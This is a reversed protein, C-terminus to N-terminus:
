RSRWRAPVTYYPTMVAEFVCRSALLVGALFWVEREAPRRRVVYLAALVSLIVLVLRVPGGAVVPGAHASAARASGLRCAVADFPLLASAGAAMDVPGLLLLASPRAPAVPLSETLHFTGSLAAVPALAVPM